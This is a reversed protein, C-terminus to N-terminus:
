SEDSGETIWDRRATKELNLRARKLHTKVASNSIGLERAIEESKMENYYYMVLCVRQARPLAEIAAELLPNSQSMIHTSEASPSHEISNSVLKQRRIEQAHSNIYENRISRIVYAEFNEATLYGERNIKEVIRAFVDQVMERAIEPSYSLSYAYGFYNKFRLHYDKMVDELYLRFGDVARLHVVKNRSNKAPKVFDGFDISKSLKDDELLVLM